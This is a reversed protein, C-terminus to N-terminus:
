CCSSCFTKKIWSFINKKKKKVNKPKKKCSIAPHDMNDIMDALVLNKNNIHILSPRKEKNIYNDM